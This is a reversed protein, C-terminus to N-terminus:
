FRNEDPITTDSAPQPKGKVVRIPKVVNKQEPANQLPQTEKVKKEKKPIRQIISPNKVISRNPVVKTDFYALYQGDTTNHQNYDLWNRHQRKHHFTNM